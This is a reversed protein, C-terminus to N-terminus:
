KSLQSKDAAEKAQAEKEQELAAQEELAAMEAQEEEEKKRIEEEERKRLEEEYWLEGFRTIKTKHEFAYDEESFQYLSASSKRSTLRCRARDNGDTKILQFCFNTPYSKSDYPYALLNDIDVRYHLLHLFPPHEKRYKKKSRKNVYLNIAICDLDTMIEYIQGDPSVMAYSQNINILKKVHLPM